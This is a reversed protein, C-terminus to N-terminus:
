TVRWRTEYGSALMHEVTTDLVQERTGASLPGRIPTFRALREDDAKGTEILGALYRAILPSQHLGDRYTGTALWLGSVGAPGILPYGDAPVPRNGVQVATLGAEPLRVQLQDVASELLFQLDRITATRRPHATIVNTGGVYLIGDPRPSCHVGCAFARNPTRLVSTPRTGDAVELLVSVGYGSVMPPITRRLEAVEDLLTLSRVGAAVVVAGAAIVDGGALRVGTVRDGSVEVQRASGDIITGGAATFARTLTSLLRDADVAHEGPIHLACLSRALEDPAFWDLDAPDVSEYPEDYERLATEIARFNASDVAATGMTNLVVTTGRAAYLSGGDGSAAALDADWAPWLATADHDVALKARGDETALMSSTVEGFCGLMAGAAASAAFPRGAEGILTVRHGRRALEFAISTGIAGNGVVAIDTGTM